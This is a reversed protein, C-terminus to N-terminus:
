FNLEVALDFEDYIVKDKLGDFFSESGYKVDFKARDVKFDATATNGDVTVSFSVENTKNKITMNGTVDYTGDEAEKVSTLELNAKSFKATNFFDESNLHGELGSKGEGELDTCEISTMDIVFSGGTLKDGNFELSGSSIMITGEHSGAVKYAKWKVSSEETKVQKTEKKVPTFSFAMFALGLIMGLFTIQNKM